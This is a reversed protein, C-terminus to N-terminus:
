NGNKCWRMIDKSWFLDESYSRHWNPITTSSDIIIKEGYKAVIDM